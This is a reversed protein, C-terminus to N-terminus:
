LTPFTPMDDFNFSDLDFEGLMKEYEQSWEEMMSDLETSEEATLELRMPAIGILQM